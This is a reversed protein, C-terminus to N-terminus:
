NRRAIVRMADHLNVLISGRLRGRILHQLGLYRAVQYTILGLPVQKAPHTIQIVQFGYSALLQSIADTTFYWLHQPPTMLRWQKGMMRSLFSGFDGTTIVLLADSRTHRYLDHLLAGPNMLHEIVDLMVVIDFPGRHAYFSEDGYQVVDLGRAQCALAADQALEIGSVEFSEQAEDLFFGYACGVELLKGNTKGAAAIDLLVRRFETALEDRSGQYDAYGDTQEGHFYGKTYISTPDFGPLTVTWGLGCSPCRLISFGKVSFLIQPYVIERCALCAESRLSTHEISYHM